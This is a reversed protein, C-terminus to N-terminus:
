GSSRCPCAWASACTRFWRGSAATRRRTKRERFGAPRLVNRPRDQGVLFLGCFEHPRGAGLGIYLGKRGGLMQGGFLLLGSLLGLLFVTKLSNATTM